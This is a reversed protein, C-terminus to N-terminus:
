RSIIIAQWRSRATFWFCAAFCPRASWRWCQRKWGWRSSPSHPSSSPMCRAESCSCRRCANGISACSSSRPRIPISGGTSRSSSRWSCAKCCRGPSWRGYRCRTRSCMSCCCSRASRPSCRCRREAASPTSGGVCSSSNWHARKRSNSARATSRRKLLRDFWLVGGSGSAPAVMDATRMTRRHGPRTLGTARHRTQLPGLFLGRRIAGAPGTRHM